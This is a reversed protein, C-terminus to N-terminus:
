RRLLWAMGAGTIAPPILFASLMDFPEVYLGSLYAANTLAAALLWGLISILIWWGAQHVHVRLVLWQLVGLALGFSFMMMLGGRFPADIVPLVGPLLSGLPYAVLTVLVWWGAGEFERRLVWWQGLGFSVGILVWGLSPLVVAIPGSPSGAGPGDMMFSAALNLPMSLLLMLVLGGITGGMWRLWFIYGGPHTRIWHTLAM